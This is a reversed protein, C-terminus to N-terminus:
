ASAFLPRIREEDKQDKQSELGDGLIKHRDETVKIVKDRVRGLYEKLEQNERTFQSQFKAVESEVKGVRGETKNHVQLLEKMQDDDEQKGELCLAKNLPFFAMDNRKMMSYVFSEQGTYEDRPKNHLHHIFYIYNWM